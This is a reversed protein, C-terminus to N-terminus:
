EFFDFTFNSLVLLFHKVKKIYTLVIFTSDCEIEDGSSLFVKKACIDKLNTVM